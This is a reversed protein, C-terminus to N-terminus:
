FAERTHYGRSDAWELARTVGDPGYLLGKFTSLDAKNKIVEEYQDYINDRKRREDNDDHNDKPDEPPKVGPKPQNVPGIFGEEGPQPSNQDSESKIVGRGPKVGNPGPTPVPVDGAQPSTIMAGGGGNPPPTNNDTPAPIMAPSQGSNDGNNLFQSLWWFFQLAAWAGNAYEVIGQLGSPDAVNLPDNMAYTYFNPGAAFGIPDPEFFRGISPAYMRRRFYYM